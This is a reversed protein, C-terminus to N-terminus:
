WTTIISFLALMPITGAVTAVSKSADESARTKAFPEGPPLGAIYSLSFVQPRTVKLAAGVDWTALEARYDEGLTFSGLTDLRNLIEFRSGLRIQTSYPHWNIGREDWTYNVYGNIAGTLLGPVPSSYRYTVLDRAASPNNIRRELDALKSQSKELAVALDIVRQGQDKQIAALKELRRHDASSTGLLASGFLIILAVAAAAYWRFPSVRPTAIQASMHNSGLEGVSGQSAGPGGLLEEMRAFGGAHNVGLRNLAATVENAPLTEIAADGAVEMVNIVSLLDDTPTRDANVVADLWPPLDADVGLENLRAIALDVSLREIDSPSYNEPMDPNGELIDLLKVAPPGLPNNIM